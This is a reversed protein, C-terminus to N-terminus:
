NSSQLTVTTLIQDYEKEYKLTDHLLKENDPMFLVLTFTGMKDKTLFTTVRGKRGPSKITYQKMPINNIEFSREASIVSDANGEDGRKVFDYYDGLNTKDDLSTYTLEIGVNEDNKRILIDKYIDVTSRTELKNYITPYTFSIHSQSSVFTRTNRETPLSRVLIISAILILLLAIRKTTIM